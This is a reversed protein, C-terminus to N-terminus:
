VNVGSGDNSANIGLRRQDGRSPPPPAPPEPRERPWLPPRLAPLKPDKRNKPTHACRQMPNAVGIRTPPQQQSPHCPRLDDGISPLCGCWEKPPRNLLGPAPTNPHCSARRWSTSFGAVAEGLRLRNRPRLQSSNLLAAEHEKVIGPAVVPLTRPSRGDRFPFIGGFSVAPWIRRLQNVIRWRCRRAQPPPRHIV